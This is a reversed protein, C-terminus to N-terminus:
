GRNDPPDPHSICGAAPYLQQKVLTRGSWILVCLELERHVESASLEPSSRTRSTHESKDKDVHYLVAMGGGSVESSWQVSAIEAESGGAGDMM